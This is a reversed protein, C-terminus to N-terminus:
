QLYEISKNDINTVSRWIKNIKYKVDSKTIPLRQQDRWTNKLELKHSDLLDDIESGVVFALIYRKLVM